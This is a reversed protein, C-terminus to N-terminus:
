CEEEEEEMVWRGRREVQGEAKKGSGDGERGRVEGKQGGKM